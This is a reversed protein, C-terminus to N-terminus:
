HIKTGSISQSKLFELEMLKKVIEQHESYRRNYRILKRAKNRQKKYKEIGQQNKYDIIALSNIKLKSGYTAYYSLITKELLVPPIMNLTTNGNIALKIMKNKPIKKLLEKFYKKRNKIREKKNKGKLGMVEPADLSIYDIDIYKNYININNGNFKIRTKTKSGLKPYFAVKVNPLAEGLFARQVAAVRKKNKSKFINMDAYRDAPSIYKFIKRIKNKEDRSLTKQPNKLSIKYNIYPQIIKIRDRWLQNYYKSNKPYHYLTTPVGLIV